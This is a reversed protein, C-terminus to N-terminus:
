NDVGHIEMNEWDADSNIDGHIIIRKVKDEATQLSTRMNKAANKILKKYKNKDWTSSPPPMYVTAIIM